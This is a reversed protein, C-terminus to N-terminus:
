GKRLHNIQLFHIIQTINKRLEAVPAVSQLLATRSFSNFKMVIANCTKSPLIRRIDIYKLHRIILLQQINNYFLLIITKNFLFCNYEAQCDPLRSEVSIEFKNVLSRIFFTVSSACVLAVPFFFFIYIPARIYCKNARSFPMVISTAQTGAQNVRLEMTIAM